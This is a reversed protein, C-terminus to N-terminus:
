KVGGLCYENFYPLTECWDCFEKWEILKHNQRQNYMTKLQLYNTTYRAIKMYSQPLNDILERWYGKKMNKNEESKYLRLLDNIDAMVGARIYGSFDQQKFQDRNVIRHMASQSSIIDIHHYRQIQPQMLVPTNWDFQVAIGKLYSDHGSGPKANGLVECRKEKKRVDQIEHVDTLMPFGSAVRSEELGYVRVNTINM